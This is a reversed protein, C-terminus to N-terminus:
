RGLDIEGARFKEETKRRSNAQYTKHEPCQQLKPEKLLSSPRTDTLLLYDSNADEMRKRDTIDEVVNFWFSGKGDVGAVLTANSRVWLLAGDKCRYRKEIQFHRRKVEVLERVLKL